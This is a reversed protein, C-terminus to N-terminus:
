AAPDPKVGSKAQGRAVSYLGIILALAIASWSKPVQDIVGTTNGFTFLAGFLSAWAESSKYFPKTEM